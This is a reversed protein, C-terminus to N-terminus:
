TKADKGEEKYHMGYAYDITERLTRRGGMLGLGRQGKPILKPDLNHLLLTHKKM